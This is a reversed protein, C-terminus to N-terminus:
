AKRKRWQRKHQHFGAAILVAETLTSALRSLADIDADLPNLKLEQQENVRVARRDEQQMAFLVANLHGMEGGGVYVSRVRSSSREKRYYYSHNGRQEWGM